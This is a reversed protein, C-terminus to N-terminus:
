TSEFLTLNNVIRRTFKEQGYAFTQEFTPLTPAIVAWITENYTPLYFNSANFYSPPLEHGRQKYDQVSKWGGIEEDFVHCLAIMDCDWPTDIMWDRVRELFPIASARFYMMGGGFTLVKYRPDRNISGYKTSPKTNLIFQKDPGQSLQDYFSDPIPSKVQRIDLDHWIVSPYETLAHLLIRIKNVWGYRVLPSSVLDYPDSHLLQIPLTTNQLKKANADGFVYLRDITETLTAIKTASQVLDSDFHGKGRGWIGRVFAPRDM